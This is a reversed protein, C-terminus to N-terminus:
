SVEMGNTCLGFITTKPFIEDLGKWERTARRNCELVAAGEGTDLFRATINITINIIPFLHM